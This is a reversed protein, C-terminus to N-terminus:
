RTQEEGVSHLMALVRGLGRRTQPDRMQKLLAMVSPPQMPHDEVDQMTIATRQVLAMVEPQTMEKVANLITVVNDGLAKVDEESFETVVNDAIRAGQRAFAFYGKDDATQLVETLKAMAPGSLATAQEALESLSELQLLMAEIRPLSRAMTRSFRAVDDLTVDQSLDDLERTAMDMAGRTVPALTQALEAWQERTAAQIRAQEALYEVQASLRDLRQLVDAPAPEAVTTM